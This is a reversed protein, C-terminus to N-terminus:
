PKVGGPTPAPGAPTARVDLAGTYQVSAGGSLQAKLPLPLAHGGSTGQMQPITLTMEGIAFAHGGISPTARVEVSLGDKLAFGAFQAKHRFFVCRVQAASDKLNFYCHGSAARTFNSVEGSVWLLGLQRELILRASGVLLSVPVVAGTSPMAPYAGTPMPGTPPISPRQPLSM